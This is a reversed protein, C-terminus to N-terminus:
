ELPSQVKLWEDETPLDDFKMKALEKADKELRTQLFEKLAQEILASKSQGLKESVDDLMQNVLPMITISIRAKNNLPNTM